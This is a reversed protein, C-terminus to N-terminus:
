ESARAEALSPRQGKQAFKFQVSRLFNLAEVANGDENGQADLELLQVGRRALLAAADRSLDLGFAIKRRLEAHSLGAYLGLMRKRRLLREMVVETPARLHVLAAPAPLLELFRLAVDRGQPHRLGLSLARTSVEEGLLVVQGTGASDVRAARLVHLLIFRVSKDDFYPKANTLVEHCYALVPCWGASIFPLCVEDAIRRLVEDATIWTDAVSRGALLRRHLTSKGSGPVGFLGALSSRTQM